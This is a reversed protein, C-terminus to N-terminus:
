TYKSKIKKFYLHKIDKARHNKQMIGCLFNNILYKNKSIKAASNTHNAKTINLFYM